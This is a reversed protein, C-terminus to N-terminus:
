AALLYQSIQRQFGLRPIDFLPIIEAPDQSLVEFGADEVVSRLESRSWANQHNFRGEAFPKMRASIAHPSVDGQRLIDAPGHFAGEAEPHREGFEHGYAENWWGCFIFAAKADISPEIGRSAWTRIVKQMGWLDFYAEDGARWRELVQEFDPLKLVLAGDTRLIRQAESLLRAVTDDDLHELCHSSYVIRASGAAVPLTISPSFEVPWPNLPGPEADFNQWGAFHFNKGGGINVNRAEASNLLRVIAHDVLAMSETDPFRLLMRAAHAIEHPNDMELVLAARRRLASGDLPNRLLAADLAALEAGDIM